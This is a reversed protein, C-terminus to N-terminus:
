IEFDIVTQLNPLSAQDYNLRSSKWDIAINQTRADYKEGHFKGAKFTIVDM